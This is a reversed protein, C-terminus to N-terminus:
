SCQSSGSGETLATLATLSSEGPSSGSVTADARESQPLAWRTTRPFGGSESSVKLRIRARKVSDESHGAAKGASKVAASEASGGEDTLYGGLWEAAEAVATRVEAPEQSSELLDRLYQSREQGWVVKGTFVSGEPTNGVHYNVISFTQMGVDTSALNNKPMGLVRVQPDEPDEAVFLVSRAVAVFARSGMVTTLADTSSSKNVHIIGLVAAGTRDALAVLPELAQRTPADKHTDLGSDLRSILPDLLILAAGTQTVQNGLATLDRPLVVESGVGESTTVDVRYVRTLDAGAAVLRPVITHEWSDETAAVIVARAEGQYIGPMRGHTIDAAYTYAVLSKGIGERGALLTLMGLPMRQDLLWKVPRMDIDSARTLVITRTGGDSEPVHANVLAEAAAQEAKARRIASQPKPVYRSM